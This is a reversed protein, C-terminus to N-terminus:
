AQHLTARDSRPPRRSYGRGRRMENRMSRFTLTVGAIALVIAFLAGVLAGVTQLASPPAAADASPGRVAGPTRDDPSAAELRPLASSSDDISSQTSPESGAVPTTAAQARGAWPSGAMVIFTAVVTTTFRSPNKSM